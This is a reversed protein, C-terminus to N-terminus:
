VSLKLKKVNEAIQPLAKMAEIYLCRGSFPDSVYFSCNQNANEGNNGLPDCPAKSLPCLKESAPM